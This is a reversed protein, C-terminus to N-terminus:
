CTSPAPPSDISIQGTPPSSLSLRIEEDSFIVGNGPVFVGASIRAERIGSGLSYDYLLDISLLSNISPTLFITGSSRSQLLQPNGAAAHQANVLFSFFGDSDWSAFYESDVTSTAGGPSPLEAHDIKHFPNQVMGTGDAAFGIGEGEVVSSQGWSDVEVESAALVRCSALSWFTLFLFLRTM